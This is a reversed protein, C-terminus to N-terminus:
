VLGVSCAVMVSITMPEAKLRANMLIRVYSCLALGSSGVLVVSLWNKINLIAKLKIIFGSLPPLGGANLLAWGFLMSASFSFFVVSALVIFYITLYYSSFSGNTALVWGMQVMGSFVLLFPFFSVSCMTLAGGLANLVSLLGTSSESAFLLMLPAIKQWSMLLYLNFRSLKTVVLPVWFHLPMLGMKVVLGSLLLSFALTGHDSLMGGIVVMLSGCSQCVFYTMAGKKTDTGSMAVPIFAMLNLEMGIWALPWSFCAAVVITGLMVGYLM